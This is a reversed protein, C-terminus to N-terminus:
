GQKEVLFFWQNVFGRNLQEFAEHLMHRFETESKGVVVLYVPGRDHNVWKQRYRELQGICRDFEALNEDTFGLKLEIVHSDQIVLDAKGKAIGYQAVIPVGLLCEELWKQLDQEHQKETMQFSRPKWKELSELVRESDSEFVDTHNDIRKM